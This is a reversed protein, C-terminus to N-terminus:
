FHEEHYFFEVKPKNPELVDEKKERMSDSHKESAINLMEGIVPTGCFFVGVKKSKVQPNNKVDEKIKRFIQLWVRDSGSWWGM